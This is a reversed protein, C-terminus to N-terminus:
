RAAVELAGAKDFPEGSSATRHEPSPDCMTLRRVIDDRESLLEAFPPLNSDRELLAPVGPVRAVFRRYLALVEDNVSAGHTDVWHLPSSDQGASGALHVQAISSHDLAALAGDLEVMPDADFNRANTWLNNVDFLVRCGTRKTLADLFQWESMADERFRLYYSINELLIPRRLREQVYDVREAIHQFAADTFAFPLLDFRQVGDCSSWCLHDSVSSVHFRESLAGLADIYSDDLPDLGAINLGVAHLGIPYRQRLKHVVHLRGSPLMLDDAIVEFWPM